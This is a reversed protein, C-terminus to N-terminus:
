TSLFHRRGKQTTTATELQQNIQETFLFDSVRNYKNRLFTTFSVDAYFLSLMPFTKFQM